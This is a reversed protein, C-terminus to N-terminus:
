DRGVGRIRSSPSLADLNDGQILMNGTDRDGRSYKVVEELLRYPARTAGIIDVDRTLWHLLPM